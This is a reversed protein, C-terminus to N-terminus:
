RSGAPILRPSTPTLGSVPSRHSVPSHSPSSSCSPPRRPSIRSDSSWIRRLAEALRRLMTVSTPHQGSEIRSIVSQSTGVREALEQQTL